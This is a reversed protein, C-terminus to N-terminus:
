MQEFTGQFYLFYHKLSDINEFNEPSYGRGGGSSGEVLIGQDVEAVVVMLVVWLMEVVVVQLM